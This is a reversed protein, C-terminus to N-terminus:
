STGLERAIQVTQSVIELFQGYLEEIEQLALADPQNRINQIKLLVQDDLELIKAAASIIDKRPPLAGTKLFLIVRLTVLYGQIMKSLPGAMGSGSRAIFKHRLRMLMNQTEQQCRWRLQGSDVEKDKLIDEGFLVIYSEKITMFKIPFVKFNATLDTPMMILPNINYRRSLNVPDLMMNLAATDIQNLLVLLNVDSRGPQFDGRAGSGYLSISILNDKLREQLTSTFHIIGEQTEQPIQTSALAPLSNM